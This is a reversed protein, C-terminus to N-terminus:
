DKKKILNLVAIILLLAFFSYLFFSIMMSVMFPAPCPGSPLNKLWIYDKYLLSIIAFILLIIRLGILGRDM